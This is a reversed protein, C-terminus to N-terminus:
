RPKRCVVGVDTSQRPVVQFIEWGEDELGQLFLNLTMLVGNVKRGHGCWGSDWTMQIWEYKQVM